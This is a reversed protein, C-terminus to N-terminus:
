FFCFFYCPARAEESAATYNRRRQQQACPGARKSIFFLWATIVPPQPRHLGEIMVSRFQDLRRLRKARVGACGSVWGRVRGRSGKATVVLSYTLAVSKMLSSASCTEAWRLWDRERGRARGHVRGARQVGSASWARSVEFSSAAAKATSGATM